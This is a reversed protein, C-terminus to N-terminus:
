AHPLSLRDILYPITQEFNVGYFKRNPDQLTVKITHATYDAAIGVAEPLTKGATLAGICVSAFLDGTGHYVADVRDTFYEFRSHDATDVGVAGIRNEEFSVGTLIVKKAGLCCLKELLQDIYSATYTQEFPMDTMFAAETINPVIIDAKACLRAMHKAFSPDFAAYMKGNDAMAPDVFLLNDPSRFMEIAKIVIDIQEVTGLYGTYFADFQMNESKWHQAIPLIQDTLDKFTFNQFATHTSLVATPLIATEIGMASIIPLAVTLSCRGICSIDQITLIRKM